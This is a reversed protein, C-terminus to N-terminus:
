EESERLIRIGTLACQDGTLAICLHRCESLLTTENRICIGSNEAEVIVIDGVRRVSVEVDVGEKNAAKWTDWNVFEDTTYTQMRNKAGPDLEWYEGDLRILAFERYHRGGVKGDASDFICLFPCHWVLRSTPLSKTHFRILMDDEIPIGRTAATRWGDIQLNPLDGEPGDLYSIKPAIRPIDSEGIPAEDKEVSEIVIDCNEGTVALYVYRSSDPLAIVIDASKGEGSITVRMHDDYKVASVAYVHEDPSNTQAIVNETVAQRTKRAGICEVVGGPRCHAYEFYVMDEKMTDFDHTRGDLSDYLLITMEGMPLEPRAESRRCRVRLRTVNPGILIGESVDSKFAECHLRNRGALTSADEREKMEYESDLDILHIMAKAFVPDFQTGMGKVIEERVKQQPLTDRYSRKSSMADYADAVAIIRAIEPIDEGKLGDPYGKGDYREHHFNAGLSLYPLRQIQALIRKGIVPHERIEDIEDTTLRGEKTIISDLVGIKGVDHLLAAYFVEDCERDNKGVARAIKRSYEAVRMSHGHTYPDKADIASALAEATQEFIQRMNRQEERLVAVELKAARELARNVDHLAFMFVLIALGVISINILSLGYAFVQILAAVPPVLTFLLLATRVGKNLNRHYQVIVTFQIVLTILPIIFSLLFTDARQYVNTENFTYYFGGIRAIVLFIFGLGCLYDVAKLRLLPRMVRGENSFVDKMYQNGAFIVFLTLTFVCFNSIHVMWFGFRSPNGDYIYALRDSALLLMAGLEMYMLTFKRRRDLGKMLLVSFAFTGCVTSLILM